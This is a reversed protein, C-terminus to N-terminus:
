NSLIFTFYFSTCSRWVECICKGCTWVKKLEPQNKKRKVDTQLLSGAAQCPESVGFQRCLVLPSPAAQQWFAASSRVVFIVATWSLSEAGTHWSTGTWVLLHCCDTSLISSSSGSLKSSNISLTHSSFNYIYSHDKQRRNTWRCAGESEVSQRRHVSKSLQVALWLSKEWRQNLMSLRSFLKWCLSVLRRHLVLERQQWGSDWHIDRSTQSSRCTDM